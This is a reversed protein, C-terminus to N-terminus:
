YRAELGLMDGLGLSAEENHCAGNNDTSMTLNKHDAESVHHLGFAHGREHTMVAELSRDNTAANCTTIGPLWWNYNWSLRTDVETANNQGDTWWCTYGLYNNTGLDGFGVLSLGDTATGNDCIPKPSGPSIDVYHDSNGQYSATADVSDPRNPNCDNYENTIHQTAAMLVSVVNAATLYSPTSAERYYWRFTQTWKFTNLASASDQCPYNTAGSGNGATQDGEGGWYDVVVHGDPETRVELEDMHGDAYM